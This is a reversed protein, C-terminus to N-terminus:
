LGILTNNWETKEADLEAYTPPTAFCHGGDVYARRKLTCFTALIRAHEARLQPNNFSSGFEAMGRKWDSYAKAFALVTAVPDALMEDSM